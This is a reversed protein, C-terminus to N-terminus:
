WLRATFKLLEDSLTFDASNLHLISSFHNHGSLQAFHPLTSVAELRAACLNVAHRQIAAPDYETVLILLPAPARALGALPSREPYLAADAGFYAPNVPVVRLDYIGSVCICGAVMTSRQTDAMFGAVHTAGASHGMLVVREPNGGYRAVKQRVWDVAAGVDDSGAPWGHEPALRYNITVGIMGHSVAWHGVNDFFAGPAEDKDGSVFGGGHVFVLVGDCRVRRKAPAFLNLRHRPHPGYVLDREVLASDVPPKLQLPAYFAKLDAYIAPSIQQGCAKIKASAEAQANVADILPDGGSPAECALRDTIRM